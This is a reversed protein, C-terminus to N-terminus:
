NKFSNFESCAPCYNLPYTSVAGCVGCVSGSRGRATLEVEDLVQRAEKEKNAALYVSALKISVARNGKSSKREEELISISKSVAGKKMYLAALSVPVMAYKENKEHLEELLDELREFRGSEFLAKELKPLVEEFFTIDKRLLTTWMQASIEFDERDMALKGSLYLAAICDPDEKLAKRLYRSANEIDGSDILASSVAALYSALKSACEQKDGLPINKLTAFANDYDGCRHYLRHLIMSIEPDKKDRRISDLAGLAREIRGMDALDEAIAIQISKEEEYGLDRRVTLNRHIQLAKEPMKKERLLNGLQIYADVDTEGSKVAMTLLRLADDKRGDILAYLADIYASRHSGRERKRQLFLMLILVIAAIVLIILLITRFNLSDM